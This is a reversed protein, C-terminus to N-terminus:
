IILCHGFNRAVKNEMWLHIFIKVVIQVIKLGYGREDVLLVATGGRSVGDEKGNWM